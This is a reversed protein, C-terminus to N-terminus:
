LDGFRMEKEMWGFRNYSGSSAAVLYIAQMPSTKCPVIAKMKICWLSIEILVTRFEHRSTEDTFCPATITEM